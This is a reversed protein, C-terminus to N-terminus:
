SNAIMHERAHKSTHHVYRGCALIVIDEAINANTFWCRRISKSIRDKSLKEPECNFHTRAHQTHRKKFEENPLMTSQDYAREYWLMYLLLPFLFLFFIHAPIEKRCWFPLFTLTICNNVIEVAGANDMLIAAGFVCFSIFIFFVWAGFEFVVYFM